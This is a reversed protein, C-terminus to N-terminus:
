RENQQGEKGLLRKKIESILRRSAWTEMTNKMTIKLSGSISFDFREVKNLNIIEYRSIKLFQPSSLEEEAERLSCRLEYTGKESIVKLRRKNSSVSIIDDKHLVVIRGNEDYVKLSEDFPVNLRKLLSLVEEDKDSAEIIVRINEITSNERFEIDIKKM